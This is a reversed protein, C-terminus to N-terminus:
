LGIIPSYTATRKTKEFRVGGGAHYDAVLRLTDVRVKARRRSILVAASCGEWTVRRNKPPTNSFILVKRSTEGRTPMNDASVGIPYIKSEILYCQQNAMSDDLQQRMTGSTAEVIAKRRPNTYSSMNQLNCQQFFRIKSQSGACFGTKPLFSTKSNSKTLLYWSLFLSEEHPHPANLFSNFSSFSGRALVISICILPQRLRLDRYSSM